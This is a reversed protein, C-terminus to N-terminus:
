MLADNKASCACSSSCNGPCAADIERDWKVGDAPDGTLVPHVIELGCRTCQMAYGQDDTISWCHQRM